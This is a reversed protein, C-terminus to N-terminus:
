VPVCATLSPGDAAMSGEVHVLDTNKIPLIDVCEKLLHQSFHTHPNLIFIILDRNVSMTGLKSGESTFRQKWCVGTMHLSQPSISVSIKCVVTSFHNITNISTNTAQELQFLNNKM